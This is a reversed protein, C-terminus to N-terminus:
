YKQKQNEIMVKNELFYQISNNLGNEFSYVPEYNLLLKSKNIDLLRKPQGNPKTKDFYVDGGFNMINKISNVLEKISLEEGSAINIPGSLIGDINSELACLIGSAADKVYLFDRTPSGDGWVSISNLNCENAYDMKRILAPIVHSTEERFDDGPGYLNALLLNITNLGFQKSLAESYSILARKAIGYASNTGEPFGNWLDNENFPTKLDRPYSCVTGISILKSVKLKASSKLVNLGIKINDEFYFAPNQNNDGIGGLRAAMHIIADPKVKKILSFTNEENTLDCESSRFKITKYGKKNLLGDVHTGLFGYGGTLLVKM